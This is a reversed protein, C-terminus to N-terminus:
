GFYEDYLEVLAAMTIPFIVPMAFCLIFNLAMLGFVNGLNQGKNMTVVRLSERMADWFDLGKYTILLPTFSLVTFISLLAIFLLPLTVVLLGDGLLHAATMFPLMCFGVVVSVVGMNVATSGMKGFIIGPTVPNGRIFRLIGYLYGGMLFYCLAVGLLSMLISGKSMFMMAILVWAIMFVGSYMAAVINHKLFEVGTMLLTQLNRAGRSTVTITHHSDQTDENFFDAFESYSGAPKPEEFLTTALPTNEHVTGNRVKRIIAMMDYPGDANETDKIYYEM